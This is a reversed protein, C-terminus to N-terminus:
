VAPPTKVAAAKQKAADAKAKLEAANVPAGLDPGASDVETQYEEDDQTAVGIRRLGNRMETKSIANAQWEAVLQARDQATTFAKEFDTNLKYEIEGSANVFLGAWTLAQKYAASVNHACTSLISTESAENFGAETATQATTRQEVLKAGLAVMQKEKKEMADGVMNNAEVQLLGCAGNEPLPLVARSGLAIKGKMVDAVWDKTLGSAWPTPQGLMYCAEEFDASNRYHAINLNALDALPPLDPTPDNNKAGVFTFPIERWPRGTGDTPVFDEVKTFGIAADESERWIEVHYVGESLRLVRFQKAEQAEFGDDDTVWQESIVVLSLLKKGGVLSVRWNIVDWPQWVLINPRVKGAELDAISAPGQTRPYDVLLGCRGFQIVQSLTDKAQQDLAVGGGDADLKLLDLTSPISVVPNKQCVQGVLGGLTRATVNYFVARAVYQKYRAKNEESQDAENPQPLYTTGKSKVQRQGAVCDRVVDYDPKLNVIEERVFDVKPAQNAAPM